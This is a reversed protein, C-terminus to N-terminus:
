NQSHHNPSKIWRTSTISHAMLRNVNKVERLSDPTDINFTIFYMVANYQRPWMYVSPGLGALFAEKIGDQNLQDIANHSNLKFLLGGHVLKAANVVMATTSPIAEKLSKNTNDLLTTLSTNCMKEKKSLHAFNILIQKAKSLQCARLRPDVDTGLTPLPLPIPIELTVMNNKFYHIGTTQLQMLMTPLLPHPHPSLTSPIQSINRSM